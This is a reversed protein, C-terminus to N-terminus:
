AAVRRSLKRRQVAGRGRVEFLIAREELLALELAAAARQPQTGSVILQQIAPMTIPHGALHRVGNQFSNSRERWWREVLSRDPWPLHGDQDDVQPADTEPGDSAIGASAADEVGSTDSVAPTLPPESRAPTPADALLSARELEHEELDAGTIATFAEGALRALEPTDMLGILWPVSMPDGLIGIGAVASRRRGPENLLARVRDRGQETSTARLCLQLATRGFRDDRGLWAVLYKLGALDGLMTLTWSAWFRCGEDPDQLQEAIRGKLDDRKLEGAARLGRARLLPDPDSVAKTLWIGPDERRVAAAAIGITRHLPAKAELLRGIWPAVEEQHLWGLASVLGRRSAPSVCGATLAELMQHRDGAGFGLVSLAFVEGGGVNELAQRCAAWGADGALRLGDLQAEVREDLAALTRLSYRASTVARARTTWLFAAEEAYQSIVTATQM